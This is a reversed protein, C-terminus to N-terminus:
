YNVFSLVSSSLRYRSLHIKQRHRTTCPPAFLCFFFLKILLVCLVMYYVCLVTYIFYTDYENKKKHSCWCGYSTLWSIADYWWQRCLITLVFRWVCSVEDSSLFQLHPPANNPNSRVVPVCILPQRNGNRTRLRHKHRRLQFSSFQLSLATWRLGTGDRWCSCPKVHVATAM